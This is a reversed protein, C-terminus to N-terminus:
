TLDNPQSPPFLDSLIPLVPVPEGIMRTHQDRFRPAFGLDKVERFMERLRLRSTTSISRVGAGAVVPLSRSLIMDAALLDTTLVHSSRHPPLLHRVPLPARIPTTATSSTPSSASGHRLM